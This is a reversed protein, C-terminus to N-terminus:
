AAEACRRAKRAQHATNQADLCPRCSAEGRRRHAQYGGETSCRPDNPPSAAPRALRVLRARETETLGGWVGARYLVGGSEHELAFALCEARVPCGACVAKAAAVRRVQAASGGTSGEPTFFLDTPMGACAAREQWSM